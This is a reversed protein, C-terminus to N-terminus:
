LGVVDSSDARLSQGDLSVGLVAIPSDGVM